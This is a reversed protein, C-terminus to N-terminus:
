KLDLLTLVFGWLSSNLSKVGTKGSKVGEWEDGTVSRKFELIVKKKKFIM